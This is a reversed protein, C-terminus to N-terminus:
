LEENPDEFQEEDEDNEEELESEEDSDSDELPRQADQAYPNCCNLCECFSSCSGKSAFCMCRGNKCQSKQTHPGFNGM